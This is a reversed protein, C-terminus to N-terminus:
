GVVGPLMEHILCVHCLQGLASRFAQQKPWGPLPGLPDNLAPDHVFSSIPPLNKLQISLIRCM